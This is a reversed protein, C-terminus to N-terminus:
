GGVASMEIDHRVTRKNFEPKAALVRTIVQLLEQDDAGSNLLAGLREQIGAFLCPALGGRSDLRLRTCHDCFHSTCNSIFGIRLDEDALRWKEAPGGGDTTRDPVLLGFNREIESRVQGNSVTQEALSGVRDNVPFFEIFRIVLGRERGFRVFDTIEDDNVGRMLVTNIKLPAFGAERAADIGELITDLLDFGAIQQLRDRRLTDLSVNIRQLGAAKLEKIQRSLLVGNTTLSLDELGSIERLARVLQPLDRRVLPEGGTLRVRRVGSQVFLRVLRVIQAFTLQSPDGAAREPTVPGSPRCYVCRLNCSDTVSLRLYDAQAM